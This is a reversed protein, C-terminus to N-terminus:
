DKGRRLDLWPTGTFRSAVVAYVPLFSLAFFVDVWFAVYIELVMATLMAFATLAPSLVAWRVFRLYTGDLKSACFFGTLIIVVMVLAQAMLPTM